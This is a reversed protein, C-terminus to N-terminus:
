TWPDMGDIKVVEKGAFDAADIGYVDKYIRDIGQAKTLEAADPVVFIATDTSNADSSNKALSVLALTQLTQFASPYCSVPACRWLMLLGESDLHHLLSPPVCEM